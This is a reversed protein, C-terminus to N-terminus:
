QRSANGIEKRWLHVLHNKGTGGVLFQRFQGNTNTPQLAINKRQHHRAKDSETLREDSEIGTFAILIGVPNRNQHHNGIHNRQYLAYAQIHNHGLILM